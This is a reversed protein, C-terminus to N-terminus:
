FDVEVLSMTVLTTRINNWTVFILGLFFFITLVLLVENNVSTDKQEELGEM